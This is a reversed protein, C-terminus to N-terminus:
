RPIFSLDCKYKERVTAIESKIPDIDIDYHLKATALKANLRATDTCCKLRDSAESLAIVLALIDERDSLPVITLASTAQSMKSKQAVDICSALVQPEPDPTPVTPAPVPNQPPNIPAPNPQVNINSQGMSGPNAFPCVPPKVVTTPSNVSVPPNTDSACFKTSYVLDSKNFYSLEFFYSGYPIKATNASTTLDFTVDARGASKVLLIIKTYAFPPKDSTLTLDSVIFTDRDKAPDPTLILKCSAAFVSM